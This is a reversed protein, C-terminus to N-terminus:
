NTIRHNNSCCKDTEAKNLDFAVKDGCQYCLVSYQSEGENPYAQLMLVSLARRDICTINSEKAYEVATQAFGSTTVFFGGAAKDGVIAAYFKQLAPRGILMDVAYRKCEVLYKNGDKMLIADRGFDNSMGTQTVAYGLQRYMIAIADEFQSPSLRLLFELRHMRAKTLRVHEETRITVAASELQKRKEQNARRTAYERERTIRENICVSCLERTEGGKVGHKCLRAAELRKQRRGNVATAVKAVGVVVYLDAIMIIAYAIWFIMSSVNKFLSDHLWYGILWWCFLGGLGSGDSRKM